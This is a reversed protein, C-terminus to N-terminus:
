PRLCHLVPLMRSHGSVTRLFCGLTEPSLSSSFGLIWAATQPHLAQHLPCRGPLSLGGFGQPAELSLLLSSSLFLCAQVPQTDSVLSGLHEQAGGWPSSQPHNGHWHLTLQPMQHGGETPIAQSESAGSSASVENRSDRRGTPCLDAAEPLALM